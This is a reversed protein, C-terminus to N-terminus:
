KNNQRMMSEKSTSPFKVCILPFSFYRSFIDFFWIKLFFIFSPQWNCMYKLRANKNFEDTLNESHVVSLLEEGTIDKTPFNLRQYMSEQDFRSVKQVKQSKSSIEEISFWNWPLLNPIWHSNLINFLFM